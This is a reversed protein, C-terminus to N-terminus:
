HDINEHLSVVYKYQLFVEYFYYKLFVTLHLLQLYLDQIKYPDEYQLKQLLLSTNQMLSEMLKLVSM